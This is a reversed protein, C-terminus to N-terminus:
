SRFGPTLGPDVQVAGGHHSTDLGEDEDKNCPRLNFNFALNSVLKDYALNLRQFDRFTGSLLRPTLQKWDPTFSCRGVDASVRLTKLMKLGAFTLGSMTCTWMAIVIVGTLQIGFQKGGGGFLAGYDNPSKGYQLPAPQLQFCLRFDRKKM